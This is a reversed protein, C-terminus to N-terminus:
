TLMTALMEQKSAIALSATRDGVNYGIVVSDTLDNFFLSSVFTYKPWRTEGSGLLLALSSNRVAVVGHPWSAQILYVLPDYRRAGTRENLSHAHAIAMYYHDDVRIYNSGLHLRQYGYKAMHPRFFSSFSTMAITLCQGSTINCDVVEHPELFRSLRLVDPSRFMMPAWNKEVETANPGTLELDIPDGLKPMVMQIKMCIKTMNSVLQRQPPGNFVAYVIDNYTILRPDEPGLADRGPDAIALDWRLPYPLAELKSRIRLDEGLRCRVIFSFYEVTHVPCPMRDVVSTNPCIYDIGHYKRRGDFRAYMWLQGKYRVLSPNIIERRGSFDIWDPEQVSSWRIEHVNPLTLKWTELAPKPPRQLRLILWVVVILTLTCLVLMRRHRSHQVVPRKGFCLNHDMPRM